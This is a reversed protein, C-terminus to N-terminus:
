ALEKWGGRDEQEAQLHQRSEIKWPVSPLGRIQVEEEHVEADMPLAMGDQGVGGDSRRTGELVTGGFFLGM